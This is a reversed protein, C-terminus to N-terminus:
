GKPPNCGACDSGFFIATTRHHRHLQRRSLLALRPRSSPFAKHKQRGGFKRWCFRSTAPVCGTATGVQVKGNKTVKPWIIQSVYKAGWAALVSLAQPLMAGTLWLLLIADQRALRGVPLAKIDTLAMVDYHPVAGKRTGANTYNVFDWPPDVVIV